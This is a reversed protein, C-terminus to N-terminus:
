DILDSFSFTPFDEQLMEYTEEETVNVGFWDEIDMNELGNEEVPQVPADQNATEAHIGNSFNHYNRRKRIM